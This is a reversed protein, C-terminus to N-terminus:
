WSLSDYYALWVLYGAHVDQYGMGQGELHRKLTGWNTADPVDVDAKLRALFQGNQGDYAKEVSSLWERFRQM